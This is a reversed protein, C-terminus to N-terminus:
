VKYLLDLYRRLLDDILGRFPVSAALGYVPAMGGSAAPHAKVEAVAERLDHLFREAVGPLTHRLTLAIHIAPPHQLGNLSWGRRGMADLVRYIDVEPSQSTFAIIWLPDGLIRLEPIEQIGAKITAATELIHRTAELYGAEGMKVMVAWCIAVLAGPRSGAMAPSAYLGGPWDTATFYQYRRLAPTRYLVVSTGKAAYGYKHTDVSMSTVGPLRFDFPPVPYGLREAWPLVFGGLCADTHFGIGCARALESMAPIPDIVGHPYGPASGVLAITRRTIAKEMAGVDAQFTETVPTRVVRIGFYQGAKDFAPHATVPAVIEPKRIGKEARAWDRYTKMAMLISETGGSTVVGCVQAQPDVQRAAHAGLMHATMAVIEAEYKVTSPWLDAHLPNSQSSLAYVRNIFAVHEPDGHYVAGSAYGEQWRSEEEAALAQMAALVEEEALGNHPLSTFAPGKGRYPKLEEELEALLAAYTAEIRRRVPPLRFLWREMARAVPRPLREGVQLLKEMDMM